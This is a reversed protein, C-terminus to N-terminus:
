GYTSGVQLVRVVRAGCCNQLSRRLHHAPLTYNWELSSQSNPLLESASLLPTDPEPTVVKLLRRETAVSGDPNNKASWASLRGPHAVGPQHKAVLFLALLCCRRLYSSM